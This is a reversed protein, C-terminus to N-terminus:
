RHNFHGTGGLNFMVAWDTDIRGESGESRYLLLIIKEL